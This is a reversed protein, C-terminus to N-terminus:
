IGVERSLDCKLQKELAREISRAQKMTNRIGARASRTKGYRFLLDDFREALSVIKDHQVRKDAYILFIPLCCIGSGGPLPWPWRVHLLVGQAIAFNRTERVVWSSGLLAHSGGYRICYTKALDHLLGAARCADKSVSLGASSARAALFTVIRAVLLSHRQINELMDYKRWLEFCAEDDPPRPDDPHYALFPLRPLSAYPHRM